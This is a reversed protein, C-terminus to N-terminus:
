PEKRTRALELYHRHLEEVRQDLEDLSKDNVIVDDAYRLREERSPQAAMIARVQDPTNADRATVREVQVDEPVDIVLSRHILPSRGSGSSLMLMAYPSTSENLIRRLETMIAPVTVSELWSREAAHEFVITRLAARDLSGDEQLVGEGFHEAIQALAPTGPEVVTRSAIDADAITIGRFAFRDTVATKGSGIGGTIGVVFKM